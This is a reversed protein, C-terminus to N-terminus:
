IYIFIESYVKKTKRDPKILTINAGPLNVSFKNGSGNANKCLSLKFKNLQKESFVIPTKSIMQVVEMGNQLQVNEAKTFEVDGEKPVIEHFKYKVNNQKNVVFYKWYTSRADFYIAFDQQIIDKANFLQFDKSIKKNLFLEIIGFCKRKTDDTSYFEFDKIKAAKAKMTFRGSQCSRLDIRHQTIPVDKKSSNNGGFEIKNGFNDLIQIESFKIPNPFTFNFMKPMLYLLQNKSKSVDKGNHLLKAKDKSLSVDSNSFYYISENELFPLESFNIFNANTNRLVFSLKKNTLDSDKFYASTTGERHLISFGIKEPKFLLRYNKMFDITEQTPVVEFDNCLKNSYYNHMFKVRIFTGWHSNVDIKIKNIGM